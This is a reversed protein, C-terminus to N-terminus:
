VWPLPCIASDEPWFLWVDPKFSLTLATMELVNFALFNIIVPLAAVIDYKEFCCECFYLRLFLSGFLTGLAALHLLLFLNKTTSYVSVPFIQFSLFQYTFIKSSSSSLFLLSFFCLIRFAISRVTHVHHINCTVFFYASFNVSSVIASFGGSVNLAVIVLM